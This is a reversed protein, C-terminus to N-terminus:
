SLDHLFPILKDDIFSVTLKERPALIGAWQSYWELLEAPKRKRQQDCYWEARETPKLAKPPAAHQDSRQLFERLSELSPIEEQENNGLQTM